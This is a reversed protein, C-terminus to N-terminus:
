KANRLVFQGPAIKKFTRDTYMKVNLANIPERSRWQYGEAVSAEYIKAVSMPRGAKELIGAVLDRLSPQATRPLRMSRISVSLPPERKQAKALIDAMQLELAEIKRRLKLISKLDESHLENLNIM